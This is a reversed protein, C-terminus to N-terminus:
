ENFITGTKVSYLFYRENGKSAYAHGFDFIIDATLSYIFEISISGTVSSGPITVTYGGTLSSYSVIFNIGNVTIVVDDMTKNPRIGIKSSIHNITVGNYNDSELTYKTGNITIQVLDPSLGFGPNPDVVFTYPQNYVGKRQATFSGGVINTSISIENYVIIKYTVADVSGDSLNGNYTGTISFTFGNPVNTGIDIRGNSYVTVRQTSTGPSSYTIVNSLVVGGHKDHEYGDMIISDGPAFIHNGNADTGLSPTSVSPEISIFDVYNPIYDVFVYKILPIKIEKIRDRITINKVNVKESIMLLLYIKSGLHLIKSFIMDIDIGIELM